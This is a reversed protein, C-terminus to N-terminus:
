LRADDGPRAPDSAKDALAARLAAPLVRRLEAVLRDLMRAQAADGGVQALLRAHEAELALAMRRLIVVSNVGVSHSSVQPATAPRSPGTVMDTLVPIGDGAPPEEHLPTKTLVPVTEAAAAKPRHRNLLQDIKGLVDDQQGAEPQAEPPTEEAM